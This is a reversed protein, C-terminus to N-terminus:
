KIERWAEEVFEKDIFDNIDIKEDIFDYELLLNQVEELLDVRLRPPLDYAPMRMGQFEAGMTLGKDWTTNKEEDPLNREYAIRKVYADVVKQVEERHSEVYDKHFVLVAHSIASDMWNMPRYVYALDALVLRRVTTLHYLGGDIKGEDLWIHADDEDVQDIITLDKNAVLGIDKLFERLFIYDGPGARRSILTKGRLDDISNIEVGNRMIIAKGPVADYGLMAVAVIPLGENVSSIFSSEGITGGELDGRMIRDVIEIGTMKGFPNGHATKGSWMESTESHNKPVEFLEDSKLFKTYLEVDLGEEDFYNYISTRYIMNVRGGHFYGIRVPRATTAPDIKEDPVYFKQALFYGALLILIIILYNYFNKHLNLTKM